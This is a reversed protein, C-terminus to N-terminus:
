DEKPLKRSLEAFVAEADFGETKAPSEVKVWVADMELAVICLPDETKAPPGELDTKPQLVLAGKHGAASVGVKSRCSGLASTSADDEM